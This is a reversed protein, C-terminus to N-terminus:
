FCSSLRGRSPKKIQLLKRGFIPWAIDGEHQFKWGLEFGGLQPIYGWNSVVLYGEVHLNKLKYFSEESFQGHLIEKMNFNGGLRLDELNPFPGGILFM